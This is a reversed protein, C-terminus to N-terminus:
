IRYAASADNALTLTIRSPTFNPNINLNPYLKPNPNLNSNAYKLYNHSSLYVGLSLSHCQDRIAPDQLCAYV